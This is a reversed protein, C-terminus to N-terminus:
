SNSNDRMRREARRMQRDVKHEQHRRERDLEKIRREIVSDPYAEPAKMTEIMQSMVDKGMSDAQEKMRETPANKAVRHWYDIDKMYDRLILFRRGAPKDLWESLKDAHGTISDLPQENVYRYDRQLDEYEERFDFYKNNDRREVAREDVNQLFKSVIPVNRLERADEDWLASITRSTKSIAKGMGGTYSEILHQSIAPNIDIGGVLRGAENTNATAEYLWKSAEVFAPHTSRYAKEWEPDETNFATQKYIPKGFYDVNAAAQTIPQAITPTLSVWVNGGNGTWDVPLIGTFGELGKLIADEADEEGMLTSYALEGIGYFPRLEHAIPITIFKNTFPVYFVLNNRRVWEPLKFYDDPAGGFLGCMAQALVPLLFGSSMFAVMAITSKVPHNKILRGANGLAQMAANFFVYLFNMYRAGLAGSGKKNFNVTIEKANWVSEAVSRGVQRSTMYVAFRTTDEACRNMFEVGNLLGRWAKGPITSAGGQAQRIFREMDKKVKDVTNLQTFGTEGGNTLFEYFYREIDISMDLSGAKYKRLLGILKGKALISTINKAYQRNYRGDEKIAVATGAFMVDRSLNGVIFEPNWTTFARSMFNKINQGWRKLRTTEGTDPNLMGNLALAARPNGNIFINYTEGARRVTVMHQPQEYRDTRMELQLGQRRRVADGNQALTEMQANFQEVISNVMDASADAPIQPNAEMWSGDAQRVYWQRSVTLLSTPHNIAMNLFAQKMLNRNAEMITREADVALTAIPDDAMSERGFAMHLASGLHYTGAAYEYVDGAVTDAWGKLPLYYDYQTSIRDYVDKSILGSEYRKQLTAKTAANVMQWLRATRHASEYAAVLDQARQEAEEWQQPMLDFLATLGAFDRETEEGNADARARMYENRELGHKAMMYDLLNKYGDMDRGSLAAVETMLPEYYRGKWADIQAQNSSSMRNEAWYANEFHEIPDGTENAVAEQLAKLSAMSDFYAEHWMAARNARKKNGQSDERFEGTRKDREDITRVRDEYEERANTYNGSRFRYRESSEESNITTNEFNKLVKAVDDLDLYEVDALNIRQQNILTQIKEKNLYTAKGQSIWNLWEANDKPFIGRVSSVEVGERSQKFHVGVLFHKGGKEVDVIVNMASNGYHFVAVPANLAKVLDVVDSLEFKHNEQQSKEHLRTSSMEIPIAPFGATRLIEGPMGLQYIHGTELKGTIQEKLEDNFRRNMIEVNSIESSYRVEGVGLRKQMVVNEAEGVLTSDTRQQYARWLMYRIENDGISVSKPLKRGEFLRKLFDLVRAKVKAWFSQEQAEMDEFGKEALQAIYEETALEVNWGNKAILANINARPTKSAHDYVERLFQGFSKEGIIDRMGKHGVIEHFITAEVDAVNECNPLVIVVEGTATDYWGKASRKKREVKKDSDSIEGVDDIFRVSTHLRTALEAGHGRMADADAMRSEDLLKKGPDYSKEVGKLLKATGLAGEWNSSASAQAGSPDNTLSAPVNSADMITRSVSPEEILEVASVEFSHPKNKQVRGNEIVTTKVRYLNGDIEVAGYFRHVLVDPNYGNEPRRVGDEGKIYDPHVEAEISRGIVEPLQKLVALHVGLNDSKGIATESLYKEVTRGSITYSVSAGASDTLIHEGVIHSKAWVRAEAIPRARNFQHRGVKIVPVVGGVLGPTVIGNQEVAQQVQEDFEVPTHTMAARFRLVGGDSAGYDSEPEYLLGDDNASHTHNGEVEVVDLLRTGGVKEMQEALMRFGTGRTTSMGFDGYLIATAGGFQVVKESIYRAKDRVGTTIETFPTHINGVIRGGQSLILFSVKARDGMRHSNLFAAVDQSGRVLPQSMPDYGPAFIQKDLTHVTLANENAPVRKVGEGSKGRTDFTGYKGTKLNIIVGHVPVDCMDQMKRLLQADQPSCKLNGSPHNHVFYVEDPRIRQYALSATPTDAISANFSGMGLEVVTPKGDKVYVVFTHEKAADELASFIFAVDDASEIREGSTFSFRGTEKFVREVLAFEGAARNLGSGPERREPNDELRVGDAGARSDDEHGGANEGGFDFDFLGGYGEPHESTYRIEQGEETEYRSAFNANKDSEYLAEPENSTDEGDEEETFEVNSAAEVGKDIEAYKAEKAEMEKKMLEEYEALKAQAQVLDDSFQFPVGDRAEMSKLEADGREISRQAAEIRERFGKGSVVDEMIEVVANKILNEKVPMAEIGLEPCSYTMKTPASAFLTGQGQKMEQKIETHVKFDFGGINLTIDMTTSRGGYGATRVQEQAERKKKNQESFFDGMADVSPFTLRGVTIEGITAAEVKELYVKNEAIRKEAEKNQGVIQRKRNHIYTQDAEWAKLKATLKRVEKEIQNKLLAYESGSLQATIDGFLDQEEELSRSEMSNEMLQKGNMISDAIAGKTKLRQYATVDLSDEVGFRLVRVPLNWDRHLNGQRLIRGNRQTYDMPRNPADLHILTHLREQINVGTGLTFTSGMIVRVEGANVRDFIELKKKVTMNSKMVVIQEEPVGAEILKKRIDEYLNFGTTKNQYNDAFIAVTGKYDKTDELSRLTQRVAENTKSNPDDEADAQVLRADVAAAKAIGYMVLPIHSNEKKEKGSMKDYADLEAKVYKMIARLARTQPLFIDQAKDGEMQPIKDSVGGAERTLVTDAVTSWIRVLEPLNVYGAFRNNEKYKGSTSFELMQQLNGFNRVFDDFYYIGYDKMVDAPMLYRMFTWIEAATNSIPTGTAFVVNKGGTKELVAQTKLFVGQSKKSPSPDVGKVGRQMATAFGLHKYEHAEDVLIADIGMSDFDEVDDTARDLLERARVEANQRTVAAKKADKEKKKDSTGGNALQAIEDNWKEIEREAQRVIMSKGDPDAEKMQELVLMKEEIKDQIFKTQREVSDPIREFVSQPVVIMDWDNFKIKAYFAKRGEANRDADELTLVKANPYLAKASAVFQGVTANQVVIMPKRATGLRRMEMATTILTYTKGTGVEHALLVPQTTARIVAKAQHPRLHFPKGGVMTAAGGFHEPVFEDPITKPVSNNFQENYIEEMRMSMEPDQQMLDRAWDKFDQRIEDVKAACATTAVHDTKTETSGDHNRYTKSVTITKNTIAAEILKHGPIFVGLPESRVGMEKNKPTDTYWPESMHWTGGANTLTVDLETREKVFREYLKPAVWSSGLTFEILHAPINMPLVAELAKINADYAGPNNENAEKAQRLKERVNGSLYEYSVEMQGTTPDEFGLGSEIIEQKVEADSKGLQESLYAPAIRGFKYLSAIIGDKVNKPAPESEKDVVRRSFIDTKGFSVIKKGGKSGRESITELAAISPYDIDNNRLWALGVNRNLNGYKEVFSDYATNLRDLLPQLGADDDHETQYKLVDALADKIGSYDKFCEQKTRGKIKNTNIGLQVARGMRAVCLNGESDLVMSGEKVGEGLAENISNTEDAPRSVKESKWDKEALEKVWAAMREMQDAGRTPFLGMSMPRYNDGQEFGFFMEGGMNEPHEIFYRNILLPLDKTKGKDNEYVVTRLASVTSVDIANASKRGNVRKRVVIIDSTAATGGFTQNHMRFVGVVDANGEKNGVLWNRLKQSKDLTGSSTIFIGIGGERLKRVNKAICFDHIDRFKKSLDSDGSEDMVHLGTVFPVNTIALAISGNPVKTKEFGQVEVKADPYLLSLIGGTMPDIEVAHIDSHESIDIPMLGLINGVGASGELISGGKFGLAKAVDWMADIVPAPTYYASNRSMVAADYEEQNLVERLRKNIPNPAWTRGENFAAGLGGWGSYRRLVEMEQPTATAGTELLRKALEIAAINADIRAKEGKPAYDVGREAHNNRTNKPQGVGREGQHPRSLSRSRETDSVSHEGSRQAMGGRDTREDEHGASEGLPENPRSQQRGRGTEEARPQVDTKENTKPNTSPTSTTKYSTKDLHECLAVRIGARVMKPLYNDLAHHPFGALEVLKEKGNARRTLTIGLVDAIKVADQYFTEYFNGVRFLVIAEPHKAKMERWQQILPTDQKTKVDTTKSTPKQEGKPQPTTASKPEDKAPTAPKEEPMDFLGGFLDGMSQEPKVAPKKPQRDKTVREAMDVLDEGPQPTLPESPKLEETPLLHRTARRIDALLEDYTVQDSIENNSTLYRENFGKGNPNEVRFYGGNFVLDDAPRDARGNALWKANPEMYLVVSLERGGGFPLKIHIEGGAPALNSQAVSSGFGHHKGKKVKDKTPLTIGLDAALQTALRHADQTAKREANRMYGYAENFDKDVQDAEYYGLIALQKNVEEIEKDLSENLREADEETRTDALESEVESATAEAQSAVIETDASTKDAEQKRQENRQDKLSQVIKETQQQSAEEQTVHQATEIIDKPGPKDFNYVDFDKVTKRDDMEEDWGLQMVEEMNQAAAYLSKLHPRIADGVEDVMAEVYDSFKRLGGKMMLYTMRTGLRLVEVDMQKSQPKGYSPGDERVIDSEMPSHNVIAKGSLDVYEGTEIMRRLSEAVQSLLMDDAKIAETTYVYETLEVEPHARFTNRSRGSKIVISINGEYNGNQAFTSANANHNSIRLEVTAMNPLVLRVYDSSSNSTRKKAGVANALDTFVGRKDTKGSFKQALARLNESIKRLKADDVPQLSSTTLDQRAGQPSKKHGYEEEPEQAIDGEAGLHSRLNSRLDDFEAADEDSIWKNKKPVPKEGANTAGVNLFPNEDPGPEDWGILRDAEEPERKEIQSWKCAEYMVPAGGTDLTVDAGGGFDVITALERKGKGDTRTYWVQEGVKFGNKEVVTDGQSSIGGAQAEDAVTGRMSVRPSEAEDDPRMDEMSLPAEDAIEDESKGMVEEAFAKADAESRLMWGKTERDYWGKLAKAKARLASMEEKSFDRDFTVLYTDLTKGQKNTYPKSVISYGGVTQVDGNKESVERESIGDLDSIQTTETRNADTLTPNKKKWMTVAALEKRGDRKEEVFITTGDEYTKSYIINDNGRKGTEVEITDYNAVVDEIREFDDDTIPIQGRKEERSGGHNKLAHRIANNDIVHKYDGDVEIGKASLDNRLRESVPAIIKKILGAASEKAKGILEQLTGSFYGFLNAKPAAEAQAPTPETNVEASAAQVSAQVSPQELEVGKDDSPQLSSEEGSIQKETSLNNVKGDSIPTSMGSPATTGSQEAGQSVGNTETSQNATTHRNYIERNNKGYSSKFIGATNINWYTGDGSLEVMLTNNHTDVAILRYTPNGDRDKGERIISWNQAVAEIFELVSKYGNSRIQAGHRAEIHILGYGDNTKPNTIVGESLLIPAETLGTSADIRGFEIDGKSNLVFQRGNEDVEDSLQYDLEEAESSQLDGQREDVPQLDGQGGGAPSEGMAAAEIDGPLRDAVEGRPERGVGDAEGGREASGQSHLIEGGRGDTESKGTTDHEHRYKEYEDALIGNYESIDFDKNRLELERAQEDIYAEYEDVSMHYAQQYESELASREAERERELLRRRRDMIYERLGGNSESLLLDILEDRIDQDEMNHLFGSTDDEKIRNALQAISIGGNEKKRIMGPMLGRREESLGGMENRWSEPTIGIREGGSRRIMGLLSMAIAERADMPESLDSLMEDLEREKRAIAEERAKRVAEVAEAQARVEAERQQQVAAVRQWYDYIAAAQAQQAEIRDQSESMEMVTKGKPKLKQAKDHADKANKVMGDAIGQAKKTDGRRFEVLADWGLEPTEAQEFIPEGKEDRPIRQLATERSSMGGAQAQAEEGVELSGTEGVEGLIERVPRKFDIIPDIFYVNGDAGMLANDGTVDTVSVEDNGYRYNGEPLLGKQALAAEIEEKTAQRVAEVYDQSLVIRLDGNDDSIGEFGYATEPFYKNHVLHEYIVDEAQVNGKMPSKAYPDKVKYVKKDGQDIYVESEGSQKHKKKGLRQKREKDFYQGQEQAIGVLRESEAERRDREGYETDGNHEAALGPEYVRIYGRDRNTAMGRAADSAVRGGADTGETGIGGGNDQEPREGNENISEGQLSVDKNESDWSVDEIDTNPIAFAKLGALEEATKYMVRTDGNPMTYEVVYQPETPDSRDISVIRGHAGELRRDTGEGFVLDDNLEFGTKTASVDPGNEQEADEERTSILTPHFVEIVRRGDEQTSMRIVADPDLGLELMFPALNRKARAFQEETVHVNEFERESYDFGLDNNRSAANVAVWRGKVTGDGNTQMAYGHRLQNALNRLGDTSVSTHETLEHGAPLLQAATQMLGAHVRRDGSHNEFKASWENTPNGNSDYERFYGVYSNDDVAAVVVDPMGTEPNVYVMGNYDGNEIYRSATLRKGSYPAEYEEPFLGKDRPLTLGSEDSANEGGAAVEENEIIPEFDESPQETTKSAEIEARYASEAQRNAIDQIQALPVVAQSGDPMTVAVNSGDNQEVKVEIIDEGVQVPVIDGPNAAITGNIEAMYESMVRDRTEDGMHKKASATSEPEAINLIDAADITDLSGDLRRIFIAKDSNATDVMSGDPLMQVNGGIIFVQENDLKLIAPRIVPNEKDSHDSNDEIFAEQEEVDAKIRAEVAQMMGNYRNSAKLYDVIASREAEGVTKDEYLATVIANIDDTGYMASLMQPISADEAVNLVERLHEAEYNLSMRARNRDEASEINMGEVYADAMATRGQHEEESQQSVFERLNHGRMVMSAEMYDLVAGKQEATMTGDNWVQEALEGINANDTADIVTRMPDWVDSTLVNGARRDTRNVANRLAFYDVAKGGYKLGSNVVMAGGGTLGVSLAMGGWIDGHFQGSKFLNQGNEDYASDLGLWTRWAQGYYEEGVEGFYGDVGARKLFNSAKSIVTGAGERTSRLIAATLDRAGLARTAEAFGPLHAGGMESVDEIIQDAEAQWAANSWTTGGKFLFQGTEPNYSARGVKNELINAMTSMGQVTNVMLPARVLLDDVTTGIAKVVWPISQEKLLAGVGAMGENKVFQLLGRELVRSLVERKALYETARTTLNSAIRTGLATAGRATVGSLGGFAGTLMFDKMFSLSTGAIDGWRYGRGLDGFQSMVAQNTALDMMADREAETLEQKAEIKSAISHMAVADRLDGYGFDWARSDGIAQMTGKAFDEVFDDGAIEGATSLLGAMPNIGAAVKLLPNGWFRSGESDREQQGRVNELHQLSEQAQRLSLRLVNLERDTKLSEAYGGDDVYGGEGSAIGGVIRDLVGRESDREAAAKALEGTRKEIAERLQAIREHTSVIRGPLSVAFQEARFEQAAREAVNEDTTEDGYPTIFTQEIKGTVPNLVMRGKMPKGQLGAASNNYDIVNRLRQQGAETGAEFERVSRDVQQMAARQQWTPTWATFPQAENLQEVKMFREMLEGDLLVKAKGDEDFGNLRFNYGNWTFTDGAKFKPKAPKVQQPTAEQQPAPQQQVPQPTATPAPTQQQVQRVLQTSQEPEPAQYIRANFEDWTGIDGIRPSLADYLKRRNSEDNLKNNFENWTGIDGIRPAVADYLKRRNQEINNTAM